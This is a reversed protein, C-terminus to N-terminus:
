STAQMCLGSLMLLGVKRHEALLMGVLRLTHSVLRTASRPLSFISCNCGLLTLGTATQQVGLGVATMDARHLLGQQSTGCASWSAQVGSPRLAAVGDRPMRMYGTLTDPTRKFSSPGCLCVPLSGPPLGAYYPAKPGGFHLALTRRGARVAGSQRGSCQKCQPYYRQKPM